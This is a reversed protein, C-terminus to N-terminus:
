ARLGEVMRAISRVCVFDDPRVDVDSITVGFHEECFTMVKLIGLSDLLGRELLPEELPLERMGRATIVHDLLYRQISRETDTM